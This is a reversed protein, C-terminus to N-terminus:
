DNLKQHGVFRSREKADAENSHSSSDFATNARAADRSGTTM